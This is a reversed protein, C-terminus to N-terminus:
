LARHSTHLLGRRNSGPLRVLVSVVVDRATMLPLMTGHTALPPTSDWARIALLDTPSSANHTPIAITLTGGHYKLEALEVVLARVDEPTSAVTYVCGGPGCLDGLRIHSSPAELEALEMAKSAGATHPAKHRRRDLGYLSCPPRRHVVGHYLAVVCGAITITSKLKSTGSQGAIRISIAKDDPGFQLWCDITRANTPAGCHLSPHSGEPRHRPADCHAGPEACSKSPLSYAIPDPLDIQVVTAQQPKPLQPHSFNYAVGRHARLPPANSVAKVEGETRVAIGLPRKMVATAEGNGSWQGQFELLPKSTTKNGTVDSALQQIPVFELDKLGQVNGNEGDDSCPQTVCWPTVSMCGECSPCVADAVYSYLYKPAVKKIGRQIHDLLSLNTDEGAQDDAELFQRLENITAANYERGADTNMKGMVFHTIRGVCQGKVYAVSNFRVSGAVRKAQRFTLIEHKIAREVEEITAADKLNHMVIVRQHMSKLRDCTPEVGPNGSFLDKQVLENIQEQLNYACLSSVLVTALSAGVLAAVGYRM